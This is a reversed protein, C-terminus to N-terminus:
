YEEGNGNEWYLDKLFDGNEPDYEHGLDDLLRDVKDEINKVVRYIGGIIYFSREAYNPETPNKSTM